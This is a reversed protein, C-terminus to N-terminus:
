GPFPFPFRPNRAGPNPREFHLGAAGAFGGAEVCESTAV